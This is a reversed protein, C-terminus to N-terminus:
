MEWTALLNMIRYNTLDFHIPTVSIKGQKIAIIDTDPDNDSDVIRGGMWYYIRGRPDERREFTNEYNRSGLKTISIQGLQSEPLAPINVNLLTNPPLKKEILSLVIKSTIKAAPGFDFPHWSDLSVAVAPIGHLAGEIAASVTGSYLVDTGLNSGQNIGSVVVDPPETLLADLAIKVCDTPTGGVQWACIPPEEVCHRDVRIPHHVTIAQSSASRESDPAVVTINAIKSLEQWLTQIGPANIGDDNTLLIHM